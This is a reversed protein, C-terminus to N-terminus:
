RSKLIAKLENISLWPRRRHLMHHCNSCVLVLDKMRTKQNEAYSSVPVTHHCEIFGKGLEGYTKFFDFGCIHCHLKGSELAAKKLDSIVKQNRERQRHMRFLIKGEPFEKEDAEINSVPKNKIDELGSRIVNAITHLKEKNSAFENWIEEELKGGRELGKGSYNPDFRRLNNLKMAVGNPNRFTEVNPREEHIPLKNLTKSLEIIKENNSDIQSPEINFYLDLALILEDRQWAPNRKTKEKDM